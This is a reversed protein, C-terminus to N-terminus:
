GRQSQFNSLHEAPDKNMELITPLARYCNTIKISKVFIWIQWVHFHWTVYLTGNVCCPRLNSQTNTHSHKHTHTCTHPQTHSLKEVTHCLSQHIDTNQQIYWSWLVWIHNVRSLLIELHCFFTCICIKEYM